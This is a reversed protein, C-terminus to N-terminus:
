HGLALKEFFHAVWLRGGRHLCVVAHSKADDCAVDLGPVHFCHVHSKMPWSTSFGLFLKMKEPM